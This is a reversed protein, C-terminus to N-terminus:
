LMLLVFNHSVSPSHRARLLEMVWPESLDTVALSVEQMKVRNDWFSEMEFNSHRWTYLLSVGHGGGIGTSKRGAKNFRIEAFIVKVSSQISTGPKLSSIQAWILSMLDTSISLVDRWFNVIHLPMYWNSRFLTVFSISNVLGGIIKLQGSLFMIIDGLVSTNSPVDGEGGGAFRGQSYRSLFETPKNM